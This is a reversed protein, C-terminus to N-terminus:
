FGIRKGAGTGESGGAIPADAKDFLALRVTSAYSVPKTM